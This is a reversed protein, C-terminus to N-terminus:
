TTVQPISPIYGDYRDLLQDVEQKTLYGCSSTLTTHRPVAEQSTRVRMLKVEDMLSMTTELELRAERMEEELRMATSSEMVPVLSNHNQDPCKMM